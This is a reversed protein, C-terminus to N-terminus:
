PPLQAVLASEVEDVSADLALVSEELVAAAEAREETGLALVGLLRQPEWLLPVACQFLAGDRTRRQAMGVVKGGGVTVEGPGLGAFCVKSSWPSTVIGGRHVEAGTMGLSALALRWTEGLWWFARGVDDDWLPDSRPLVVDVWAVAGPEVLM